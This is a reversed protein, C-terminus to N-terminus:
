RRLRIPAQLVRNPANSEVLTLRVWAALSRQNALARRAASTLVLNVPLEGRHGVSGRTRAIVQRRLGLRRATRRDVVLEIGLTVPRRTGAVLDLGRSRVSRVTQGRDVALTVGEGRISGDSINLVYSGDEDESFSDLAVHYTEGRRAVFSIVSSYPDPGDQGADEDGEADETGGVDDNSAIEELASVDRGTYAGLTTDFHSGDTDITVRGTRAARFRFWVSQHPGPGAHSPEGPEASAQALSGTYQGPVQVSRAAGFADNAPPAAGAPAAFVLLSAVGALTCVTRRSALRSAVAFSRVSPSGTPERTSPTDASLTPTPNM